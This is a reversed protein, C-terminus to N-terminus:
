GWHCVKSRAEPVLKKITDQLEEIEHRLEADLLEHRDEESYEGLLWEDFSSQSAKGEDSKNGVKARVDVPTGEFEPNMVTTMERQKKGIDDCAAATREAEKLNEAHEVEPTIQRQSARGAEVEIGSQSGQSKLRASKVNRERNEKRHSWIMEERMEM